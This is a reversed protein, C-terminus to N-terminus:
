SECFKKMCDEGRYVDHRNEIVDFTWIMLMSFGSPVHEGVKATSLKGFNNKVSNITKYLSKLDVCFISPIKDSKQYQNLELIKTDKSPM